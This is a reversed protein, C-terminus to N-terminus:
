INTKYRGEVGGVEFGLRWEEWNIRTSKAAERMWLEEQTVEGREVPRDKKEVRWQIWQLVAKLLGDDIMTPHAWVIYLDADKLLKQLTEKIIM